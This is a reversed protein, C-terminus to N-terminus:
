TSAPMTPEKHPVICDCQEKEDRALLESLPAYVLVFLENEKQPARWPVQADVVVHENKSALLLLEEEIAQDAKEETCLGDEIWQDRDLYIWSPGLREVLAKSLTSKGGCSPGFIFLASALFVLM